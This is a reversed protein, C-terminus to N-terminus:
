PQELLQVFEETMLYIPHNGVGVDSIYGSNTLMAIKGGL